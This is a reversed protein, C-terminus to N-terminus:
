DFPPIKKYEYLSKRVTYMLYTKPDWDSYWNGYANLSRLHPNYKDYYDSAQKKTEFTKNMYGIHESKGDQTPNKAHGLPDFKQVELVYSM